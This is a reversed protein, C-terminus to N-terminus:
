ITGIRANGSSVNNNGRCAPSPPSETADHATARNASRPRWLTGARGRLPHQSNLPPSQGGQDSSRWFPNTESNRRAPDGGSLARVLAIIFSITDSIRRTSFVQAEPSMPPESARIMMPLSSGARRRSQRSFRPSLDLSLVQRAVEHDLEAQGGLVEIPAPILGIGPL